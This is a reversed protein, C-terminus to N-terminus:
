IEEEVGARRWRGDGADKMRKVCVRLDDMRKGGMGGSGDWWVEKGMSVGFM